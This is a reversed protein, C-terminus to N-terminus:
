DFGYLRAPNQVLIRHRTPEDRAWEQLLDFLVADDPKAKRETPHPWDSGWVCREPAAKVYERAVRTIDAYRPPGVQTDLYAGSLKVWGRGSDLLRRVVAYAAHAVGEPQPLRGMHDIVITGPLREILAAMAAIQDGRLHLQTHWGRDAIRRALPEIMEASTVATAPDHQSFRLGRVGSAHLADLEADTATPHLVAVGRARDAGLEGLAVVLGRNDTGYVAAQVVVARTTGIRQQLLRYEAVSADATPYLKPWAKPFRPDYTHLHSDCANAPAKLRPTATGASNPVAASL